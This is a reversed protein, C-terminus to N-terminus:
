SDVKADRAVALLDLQREGFEKFATVAPVDM